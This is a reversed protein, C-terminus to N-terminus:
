TTLFENNNFETGDFQGPVIEFEWDGYNLIDSVEAGSIFLGADITIDYLGNASIPTTPTVEFSNNAPDITIDSPSFTQAIVGDKFLRMAGTGITITKNFQGELTIFNVTGQGYTQPAPNLSILRLAPFLQYQFDFPEDQPNVTLSAPMYNTDGLREEVEYDCGSVRSNFNGHQLFILPSELMAFIRDNVFLDIGSFLFKRKYTTISRYDAVKGNYRTYVKVNRENVPTHDYFNGIRVSQMKVVGLDYSIGNIKKDGGYDIRTSLDSQYNTVCFNNSYWTKGTTTDFIRLYLPKTYFDQNINGFEYDIQGIGNSDTYEFYYFNNNINKVVSQSCDILDVVIGGFFSIDTPSNSKQAFTENTKQQILCSYPLKVIPTNDANKASAFDTYLVIFANDRM